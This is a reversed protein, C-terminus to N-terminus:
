GRSLVVAARRAACVSTVLTCCHSVTNKQAISGTTSSRPATGMPRDIPRGCRGTSTSLTSPLITGTGKTIRTDPADKDPEPRARGPQLMQDGPQLGARLFLGRQYMFILQEAEEQQHGNGQRPSARPGARQHRRHEVEPQLVGERGDERADGDRPNQHVRQGDADPANDSQMAFTRM